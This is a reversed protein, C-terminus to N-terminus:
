FTSPDPLARIAARVAAASRTSGRRRVSNASRRKSKRHESSGVMRSARGDVYEEDADVDVFDDEDGPFPMGRTTDFGHHETNISSALTLLSGMQEEESAGAISKIIDAFAPDLEEQMNYVSGASLLSSTRCDVKATKADKAAEANPTNSASAGNTPTRLADSEESDASSSLPTASEDFFFLTNRFRLPEVVPIHTGGPPSILSTSRHQRVGAFGLDKAVPFTTVMASASQAVSAAPPVSVTAGAGAGSSPGTSVQSTTRQIRLPAVSPTTYLITSPGAATDDSRVIGHAPASSPVVHSGASYQSANPLSLSNAANIDIAPPRSVPYVQRQVGAYVHKRTGTNFPATDPHMEAAASQARRRRPPVPTSLLPVGNPLSGPLAWVRNKLDAIADRTPTHSLKPKASAYSHQTQTRSRPPSPPLTPLTPKASAYFADMGPLTAREALSMGAGANSHAWLMSPSEPIGTNISPIPMDAAGIPRPGPIMFATPPLPFGSLSLISPSPSVFDKELERATDTSANTSPTTEGTTSSSTSM